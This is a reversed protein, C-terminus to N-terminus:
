LSLTDKVVLHILEIFRRSTVQYRLIFTMRMIILNSVLPITHKHLSIKPAISLVIPKLSQGKSRRVTFVFRLNLPLSLSLGRVKLYFYFLFLLYCKGNDRKNGKLM